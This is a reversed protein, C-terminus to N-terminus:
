ENQDELEKIYGFLEHAMSSLEEKTTPIFGDAMAYLDFGIGKLNLTIEQKNMTIKEKLIKQINISPIQNFLGVLEKRDKVCQARKFYPWAIDKNIYEDTM